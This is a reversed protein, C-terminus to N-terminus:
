SSSDAEYVLLATVQTDATVSLKDRPRGRGDQASFSVKLSGHVRRQYPVYSGYGYSPQMEMSFGEIGHQKALEAVAKAFEIVRAPILPAEMAVPGVPIDLPSAANGTTTMMGGEAALRDLEDAAALLTKAYDSNYGDGDPILDRLRQSLSMTAGPEDSM